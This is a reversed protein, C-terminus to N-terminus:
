YMKVNFSSIHLWRSVTEAGRQGEGVATRAEGGNVWLEDMFESGLTDVLYRSPSRDDSLLHFLWIDAPAM